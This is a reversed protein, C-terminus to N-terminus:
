LYEHYIDHYYATCAYPARQLSDWGGKLSHCFLRESFTDTLPATDIFKHILNHIYRRKGEVYVLFGLYTTYYTLLKQTM